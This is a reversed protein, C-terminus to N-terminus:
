FYKWNQLLNAILIGQEFAQRTVQDTAFVRIKPGTNQELAVGESSWKNVLYIKFLALKTSILVVM